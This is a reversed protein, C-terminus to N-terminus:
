LKIVVGNFFSTMFIIKNMTHAMTLMICMGINVNPARISQASKVDIFFSAFVDVRAM